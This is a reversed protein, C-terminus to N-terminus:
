YTSASSFKSELVSLVQCGFKSLTGTGTRDDKPTGNSIIEQVLRLYLYEEHREIIMKPLFSFNKVELKSTDSGIDLTLDVEHGISKLASKRVRVYTTFSFHIGNEVMPYSSYWPQFASYDIAPMFTDCDFSTDIETIHIADCGPANLSERYVSM